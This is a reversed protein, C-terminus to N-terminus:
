DILYKAMRDNVSRKINYWELKAYVEKNPFLKKLRPLPTNGILEFINKFINNM